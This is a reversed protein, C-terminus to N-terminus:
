DIAVYVGLTWLLGLAVIIALTVLRDRSIPTRDPSPPPVPDPPPVPAPLPVPDPPLPPKPPNASPYLAQLNALVEEASQPRHKPDLALTAQILVATEQRMRGRKVAAGLKPLGDTGRREAYPPAEGLLMAYLTAGIGYVDTWPGQTDHGLIQEPPAFGDTWVRTHGRKTHTERANGFDILMLTGTDAVLANSPKIDRHILGRAHVEQVAACLEIAWGVAEPERFAGRHERLRDGLTSGPVFDMVLYATGHEEFTEFVRVIRPHGAFRVLRDGEKRFKGREEDIEGQTTDKLPVVTHGDKSRTALDKPVHEKIARREGKYLTAALYTVGNGGAGLVRGVVYKKNLVTGPALETSTAEVPLGPAEAGCDRCGGARRRPLCCHLCLAQPDIM